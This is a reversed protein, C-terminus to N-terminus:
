NNERSILKGRRWFGFSGGATRVASVIVTKKMTKGPLGSKDITLIDPLSTETLEYGGEIGREVKLAGDKM